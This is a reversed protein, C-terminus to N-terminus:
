MRETDEENDINRVSLKKERKPRMEIVKQHYQKSLRLEQALANRKRRMRRKDKPQEIKPM